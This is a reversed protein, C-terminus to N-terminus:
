STYLDSAHLVSGIAGNPFRIFQNKAMFENNSFQRISDGSFVDVLRIPFSAGYLTEDFLSRIAEEKVLCVTRM